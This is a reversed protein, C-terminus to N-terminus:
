SHVVARLDPKAATKSTAIIATTASSSSSSSAAAATAAAVESITYETEASIAIYESQAKEIATTRSSTADTATALTQSVATVANNRSCTSIFAYIFGHFNFVFFGLKFLFGHM